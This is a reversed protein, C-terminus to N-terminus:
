EPVDGGYSAPTEGGLAIEASTVDPAPVPAPASPVYEEDTGAGSEGQGEGAGAVVAVYHGDIYYPDMASTTNSVDNAASDLDVVQYMQQGVLMVFNNLYNLVGTKRLSANEFEALQYDLVKVEEMASPDASELADLLSSVATDNWGLESGLTKKAGTDGSVAAILNVKLHEAYEQPTM